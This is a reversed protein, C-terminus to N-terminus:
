VSVCRSRSGPHHGSTSSQDENWPWRVGPEKIVQDLVVLFRTLDGRVLAFRGDALRNAYRGVVGCLIRGHSRSVGQLTAFGLVVNVVRGRADPVELGQVIGGYNLVRLTLGSARSLTYRIVPSGDPLTGFPEGTLSM